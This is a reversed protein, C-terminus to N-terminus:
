NLLQIKVSKTSEGARFNLFYLGAPLKRNGVELQQSYQGAARRGSVEPFNLVQSGLVSHLSVAVQETEELEYKLTLQDEVITPYAQFSIGPELEYTATPLGFHAILTDPGTLTISSKRDYTKGLTSGAKSEWRIFEYDNDIAKAKVLNLMGGFYAETWPFDQINNITNLDIEAIGADPPEVILTLDYPGSVDFCEVMGDDLLTCREEIFERLRLLNAEWEDMSGGWRLIHRPMEPAIVAIMRDLTSLMNDCSFVTNMLDAQRSYYLQRFTENQQQLKLFIKEHKGVDGNMFFDDMAQSIENIDCPKADPDTNPVGSYNIYYDFTADNDWLIYGWKKRDGDPNIGRWWGTNYNLWDSSVANLNTIMYDILSLLRIEDEVRAYNDPNSMDNDLVFDRIEGWDTFSQQGGYEAWTNGWTALYQLDFKEQDFYYKTFDHDVPRERLGYVGWYQGNLFVIGREVARVEVKLGGELALTHVFEDRIHCSGEHQTWGISPYNDDGSARFMMRQFEDRESYSFVKEKITSNYGMEDRSIWDISRQPHVWSDQGHSNLEGFSIASREKNVNFWEISGIPRLDRDGAALELLEDAAISIVPLSFDENIFYTNFTIRGPLINANSSFARAKLISTSNIAIPATYALSSATPNEGNLTYRIVVDPDSSSISATQAANYYGANLDIIPASTYGQRKTSFNNSSKPSPYECVTWGGMGDMEKCRSHGLLTLEMPIKEVITGDPKTLTIVENSKTQTLKFNTHMNSFFVSDNRGSCWLRLFGGSPIISNLPFTWKEPKDEKDSLHWGAIDISETSSNYLEIWDEYRTFNDPFQNLNSASYENVSIQATLPNLLVIFCGCVLLPILRKM